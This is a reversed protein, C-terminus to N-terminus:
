FQNTVGKKRLDVGTHILYGLPQQFVNNYLSGWSQQQIRYTRSRHGGITTVIMMISNYYMSITYLIYVYTYICIYIYSHVLLIIYISIFRNFIRIENAMMHLVNVLTIMYRTAKTHGPAFKVFVSSARHMKRLGVAPDIGLHRRHWQFSLLNLLPYCSTYTNTM